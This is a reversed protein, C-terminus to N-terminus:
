RPPFYSWAVGYLIVLGALGVIMRNAAGAANVHLHNSAAAGLVGGGALVIMVASSAIAQFAWVAGGAILLGGAAAAALLLVMGVTGRFLGPREEARFLADCAAISWGAILAIMFAILYATM